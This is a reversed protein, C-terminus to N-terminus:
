HGLLAGDGNAAMARVKDAAIKRQEPTLIPLIREAFAAVRETGFSAMAKMDHPPAVKDLDLKDERFAELAHKGGRMGAKGHEGAKGRREGAEGREGRGHEGHAKWEEHADHMSDKIADHLKSRQDDTLKLEDALEKMRGFGGLKHHEGGHGHRAKM